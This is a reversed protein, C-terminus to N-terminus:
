YKYDGFWTSCTATTTRPTGRVTGSSVIRTAALPFLGEGANAVFQLDGFVNEYVIDGASQVLVYTSALNQFPETQPGYSGSGGTQISDFYTDVVIADSLSATFGLTIAM